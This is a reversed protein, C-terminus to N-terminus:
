GLEVDWGALFKRLLLADKMNVEGDLNVDLAAIVTEPDLPWGALHKRLILSDKMNVVGDGNADGPVGDVVTITGCKIEIGVTESNVNIVDNKRYTFSITYDGLPLDNRIKLKMTFATGNKFTDELANTLMIVPNDASVYVNELESFVNGNTVSVLEFVTKDYDLVLRMSNLGRNDTIEVPVTVYKGVTATKNKVTVDTSDWVAFLETDTNATIISGGQYIVDGDLELAWGLFDSGGRTPVLSSITYDEDYIKVESTISFEGGNPNYTITCYNIEWVAYLTKDGELIYSDGALFEVNGDASTSWGKFAYYHRTPTDNTLTLTVDHTKTQSEPAGEGGNVDYTVTYTLAEWIAYLTASAETTYTDAPSYEIEGNISTSWGKFTYGRRTPISSALTLPIDHTKTQAIPQNSGGNANYIISYTNAEWVAYLTISAETVYVVSPSFSVYGNSTTSWGKFTYGYKTPIKDTLTLPIDHTKTQSEPANEGGNANYTVTYTLAEWVAYLLIPEEATYTGSPSYEVDGNISTSWGKFTYGYRTPTATTLTLPIDHIKDQAMPPNIGGNANFTVTYTNAKWVAYLTKDGELTYSAGALFEVNGDASTSWGKFIYGYRTPIDTTLTLPTDHAKTQSEFSGEGGNVNYAVTYTHAEWIAYLTKDGELTYEDSPSFEVEGDISTSWGKFTYGDRSPTVSSLTLTTGHAKIQAEPTTTVGNASYIIDYLNVYPISKSAAYTDAYIGQRGHFKLAICGNFANAGISTVSSTFHIKELSTCGIFAFDNIKNVSSPIVVETLLANNLYLNHALNLPNSYTADFRVNLWSDLNKIYVGALGVCDKFANSGIKKLSVPLEVTSLSSCGAFASLGINTVGEPIKINSIGTGKFCNDSIATIGTPLTVTKLNVCESFASQGIKTVSNPIEVSTISQCRMFAYDKIKTVSEPIVLETILTDNLYLKDAYYLPNIYYNDFSINCWAAIDEIYVDSLNNCNYFADDKITTVTSPIRISKLNVCDYFTNKNIATIGEPLELSTLSSCHSFASEGISTVSDGIEISTLRSCNYFAGYGINGGTITVSKLSSPIYYYASSSSSYYQLTTGSESSSTTYGFIAGFVSDAGTSTKSLGVFPLTISELISCYTFASDGISTVSDPIKISSLYTCNYFAGSGISTVSDGIEISTLSSCGSFASIGISTVSDPIEISTLSSCNSFAHYGISTVSDPLVLETVLEGNLYLKKAYYLPNAYSDAFSINCWAAIDTINISTLSKCYFFAGSGISTVSDGIEISTLSSCYTFAYDGISTVSDPIEISTLSSCNSFAYNGISTVSDPIEISTLSACGDFAYSSISLADTIIVTKLSNPVYSSNSSYSSAGFICGFHTDGAGDRRTGVFPLTMNELRSCGSFASNGISTVSNPIEISTLSSCYYFAYNGISTVSDPIEISTLSSCYYFAYNGISTVGNEIIVSKVSSRNSYWPTDVSYNSYSYKKMEGMGSITLLGDSDLTYTVNDGCSGSKVITAASAGISLIVTILLITPLLYIKKM